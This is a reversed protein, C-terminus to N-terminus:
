VSTHNENEGKSHRGDIGGDPGPGFASFRFGTEARAIDRCLEEFDIHSLNQLRSM